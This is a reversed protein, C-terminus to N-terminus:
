DAAAGNLAPIPDAEDATSRSLALYLYIITTTLLTLLQTLALGGVMTYRRRSKDSIHDITMMMLYALRRTGRQCGDLGRITLTVCDPGSPLAQWNATIRMARDDSARCMEGRAAQLFARSM